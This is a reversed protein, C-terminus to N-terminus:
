FLDDLDDGAAANTEDAVSKPVAAPAEIKKKRSRKTKGDPKADGTGSDTVPKPKKAAAEATLLEAALECSKIVLECYAETSKADNAREEPISAENRKVTDLIGKAFEVQQQLQRITVEM